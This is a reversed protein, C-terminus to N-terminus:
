RNVLTNDLELFPDMTSLSITVYQALIFHQM